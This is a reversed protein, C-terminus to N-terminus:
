PVTKTIVFPKTGQAHDTLPQYHATFLYVFLAKMFNFKISYIYVTITIVVSISILLNRSNNELSPKVHVSLSSNELYFTFMSLTSCSIGLFYIKATKHCFGIIWDLICWIYKGVHIMYEVTEMPGDNLFFRVPYECLM